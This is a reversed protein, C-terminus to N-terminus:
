QKEKEKSNPRQKGSLLRIAIAFEPCVWRDCVCVQKCVGAQRRFDVSM